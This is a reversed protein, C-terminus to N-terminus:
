PHKKQYWYWAKEYKKLLAKAEPDDEVHAGAQVLYEVVDENSAKKRLFVGLINLRGHLRANVDAGENILRTAIPFLREELAVILPTKYCKSEGYDEVSILNLDAKSLILNFCKVFKDPNRIDSSESLSLIMANLATRHEGNPYCDDASIGNALMKEVCDSFGLLACIAMPSRRDACLLSLKGNPVSSYDVFDLLMLYVIEAYPGPHRYEKLAAFISQKEESCCNYIDPNYKSLIKLGELDGDNCAVNAAHYFASYHINGDSYNPDAGQRILDEFKWYEGGSAAAVLEKTKAKQLKSLRKSSYTNKIDTDEAEKKNAGTTSSGNGSEEWYALYQERPAKEIKNKAKIHGAKAAMILYNTADEDSVVNERKSKKLSGLYYMANIDGQECREKWWSLTSNLPLKKIRKIIINDDEQVTSVNCGTEELAQVYYKLARQVDKRVGNGSSYVDGLYMMSRGDGKDAAKRWWQIAIKTSPKVKQGKISMIGLRRMADVDGRNAEEALQRIDSKGLTSWEEDSARLWSSGGFASEANVSVGCYLFLLTTYFMITKTILSAEYEIYFYQKM